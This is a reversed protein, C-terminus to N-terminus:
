ASALEPPDAGLEEPHLLRVAFGQRLRWEANAWDERECAQAFERSVYAIWQEPTDPLNAVDSM